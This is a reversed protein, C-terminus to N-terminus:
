AMEGFFEQFKPRYSRSLTLQTGDRLIVVYDGHFLPQLEQIREVNVITSRHIRLFRNTALRTELANMTERLLHAEKGVHLKVYNGAAEIWDVEELRLFFVRGASKIMIRELPKHKARAEEIMALVREDVEAPQNREVQTRARRLARQFRPRDFPKVLYDLAHAEFAKLAYRDYATVFITIPMREVGIAEVVGFGDMGPMQIDLFLLDPDHSRIADVAERGDACEGVIEVDAERELLARIRERALPEDDVILARIKTATRSETETRM